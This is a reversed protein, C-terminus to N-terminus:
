LRRQQTFRNIIDEQRKLEIVNQNNFDSEMDVMKSNFERKNLKTQTTTSKSYKDMFSLMDRNSVINDCNSSTTIYLPESDNPSENNIFMITGDHVISAAQDVSDFGNWNNLSLVNDLESNQKCERLADKYNTSKTKYKEMNELSKEPSFKEGSLEISSDMGNYKTTSSKHQQQQIYEKIKLYSKNLNLFEARTAGGNLEPDLVLSKVKFAEKLVKQDMCGRKVGLCEYPDVNISLSNM